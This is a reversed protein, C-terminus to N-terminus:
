KRPTLPESGRKVEEGDSLGDGDTDRDNPDTGIHAETANDLGDGDPDARPDIPGCPSYRTDWVDSIGNGDRDAADGAFRGSARMATFPLGNWDGSARVTALYSGARSLPITASYIGPKKESTQLKVDFLSKDPRTITASFGAPVLGKPGVVYAILEAAPMRDITRALELWFVVMRLPVAASAALLIELDQPPPVHTMVSPRRNAVSVTWTGPDPAAITFVADTLNRTYQVGADGAAVVTGNPRRVTLLLRQEGAPVDWNLAFQLRRAGAPVFVPSSWTTGDRLTDGYTYLRVTRDIQERAFHYADALRNLMSLSHGLEVPYFDGGTTSAIEQLLPQDADPGLAVTHIKLDHSSVLSEVRPRVPGTGGALEWFPPTNELGDSLLVLGWRNGAVADAEIIDLAQNLGAGISTTHGVPTTTIATAIQSRHTGAILLTDPALRNESVDDFAVVGVQDNTYASEAFFRAATRAAEIKGEVGMSGSHDLVAVTTHNQVAADYVVADRYADWTRIGGDDFEVRLTRAGAAPQVVPDVILWHERQVRQVERVNAAVGGITVSWKTVDTDASPAGRAFITRVILAGQLAADDYPGVSETRATAPTLIHLDGHSNASKRPDHRFEGWANWGAHTSAALDYVFVRADPRSTQVVLEPHGDGDLDTVAPTADINGALRVPWVDGDSLLTGNPEALGFQTIPEPNLYSSSSNGYGVELAADGRFDAVLPQAIADANAFTVPWGTRTTATAPDIARVTSRWTSSLSERTASLVSVSPDSSPALQAAAMVHAFLGEGTVSLETGAADYVKMPGWGTAVAIELHRDGDVDFLLPGEMSSATGNRVDTTWAVSGDRHWAYLTVRGPSAYRSALAVIEMEGDGDLDGAAPTSILELDSATAYSRILTGNGSYARVAPATVSTSRDLSVLIDLRGDETVDALVPPNQKPISYYSQNPADFSIPFGSAALTGNWRVVRLADVYESLWSRIVIEPRGDGDVDGIAPSHVLLEGSPLTAPFGPLSTGDARLVDVVGASGSGAIVLERDGDGDIDYATPSAATTYYGPIPFGAHVPPHTLDTILKADYDWNRTGETHVRLTFQGSAPLTIPLAALDLSALLQLDGVYEGQQASPVPAQATTSTSVNVFDGPAPTWGPAVQIRYRAFGPGYAFGRIEPNTTLFEGDALNTIYARPLDIVARDKAVVGAATITLELVQRGDLADTDVNTLVATGDSPAASGSGVSVAGSMDWSSSRMLSWSVPTASGPLGTIARIPVTGLRIALEDNRKRSWYNKSCSIINARPRNSTGSAENASDNANVLGWGSFVDWGPTNEGQDGTVAAPDHATMRLIQRVQETTLSPRESIVLAAVGATIPSAGSTGGFWSSGGGPGPELSWVQEAPAAVDTKPGYGSSGGFARHGHREFNSISMVEEWRSPDSGYYFADLNGLSSVYLINEPELTRMVADVAAAAESFGWSMSHNIVRVQSFTAVYSVEAITFASTVPLIRVRHAVGAIDLGNDAIAAILGSTCTGHGDYCDAITHSFPQNNGDIFNWGVLDDVRGNVDADTGDSWWAVVDEGDIRGNGNTDTHGMGALATVTSAVNLDYFTLEAPLGDATSAGRYATVIAAPVEANNLFINLYLDEQTVDIVTDFVAVVVSPDGRQVDWAEPADIDFDELYDAGLGSNHFGWRGRQLDLNFGPASPDLWGPDNPTFAIPPRRVVRAHRVGEIQLLRAVAADLNTTDPFKLEFRDAADPLDPAPHDREGPRKKRLAHQRAYWDKYAIVRARGDERQEVEGYVRWVREVRLCRLLEVLPTGDKLRDLGTQDSLSFEEKWLSPELELQVRGPVAALGAAPDVRVEGAGPRVVEPRVVKPKEPPHVVPPPKPCCSSVFLLLAAVIGKRM